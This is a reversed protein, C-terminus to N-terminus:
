GRRWPAARQKGGCSGDGQLMKLVEKVEQSTEASPPRLVSGGGQCREKKAVEGSPEGERNLRRPDLGPGLFLLLWM